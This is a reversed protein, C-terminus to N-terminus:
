LTVLAAAGIIGADKEQVTEIVLSERAQRYAFDGVQQLTAERFL